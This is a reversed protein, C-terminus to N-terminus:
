PQYHFQERLAEFDPTITVSGSSYVVQSELYEIYAKAGEINFEQAPEQRNQVEELQAQLQAVEQRSSVAVTCAAACGVLLLAMVAWAWGATKSTRGQKWVPKHEKM